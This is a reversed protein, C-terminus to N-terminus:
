ERGFLTLILREIQSRNTIQAAIGSLSGTNRAPNIRVQEPM